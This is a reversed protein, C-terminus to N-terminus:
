ISHVSVSGNLLADHLADLNCRLNTSVAPISQSASLYGAAAILVISILLMANSRICSVIRRDGKNCAICLTAADPHDAM